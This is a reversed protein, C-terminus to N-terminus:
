DSPLKDPLISNDLQIHHKWNLPFQGLIIEIPIQTLERNTQPEIVTLKHPGTWLFKSIHGSKELKEPEKGDVKILIDYDASNSIDFYVLPRYWGGAMAWSAALSTVLLFGLLGPLLEGKESTFIFLRISRALLLLLIFMILSVIIWADEWLLAFFFSVVGTGILLGIFLLIRKLLSKKPHFPIPLTKQGTQPQQTPPLEQPPPNKLHEETINWSDIGSKPFYLHFVSLFKEVAVSGSLHPLGSNYREADYLLQKTEEARAPISETFQEGNQLTLNVLVHGDKITNEFLEKTEPNSIDLAYHFSYPTSQDYISVFCAIVAGEPLCFLRFNIAIEVGKFPRFEPNSSVPNFTLLKQTTAM